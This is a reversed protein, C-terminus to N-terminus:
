KEEEARVAEMRTNPQQNTSKDSADKHQIMRMLKDEKGM